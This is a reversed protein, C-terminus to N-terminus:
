NALLRMLPGTAPKPIFSTSKRPMRVGANALERVADESVPRLLVATGGDRRATALAHAADHDFVVTEPTDAVGWAAPVLGQHLVAVDLKRWARPARRDVAGAVAGDVGSLLAFRQGDSLVVAFGDRPAV